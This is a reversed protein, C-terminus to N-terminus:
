RTLGELSLSLSMFTPSTYEISPPATTWCYVAEGQYASPDWSFFFPKTEIEDLLTDVNSRVWAPTLNTFDARFKVGRRLLSRGAFHGGETKNPMLAPDRAYTPPTFGAKMGKEMDLRAGVALVGISAAASGGTILFRWYRKSASTFTRVIAASTTPTVSSVDTWVSNDPSHQLKITAGQTHLDHGFVAWYDASTASGMDVKVWESSFGTPKWADGPTTLGDYCNEVDYDTAESSATTTGTTLLNEYCIAPTNAM